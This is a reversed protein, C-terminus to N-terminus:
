SFGDIGDAECDEGNICAIRHHVYSDKCQYCVETIPSPVDSPQDVQRTHPKCSDLQTFSPIRPLQIESLSNTGVEQPECYFRPVKSTKTTETNARHLEGQFSSLKVLRGFIPVTQNGKASRHTQSSENSKHDGIQSNSALIPPQYIPLDHRQSLVQPLKSVSFPYPSTPLWRNSRYIYGM